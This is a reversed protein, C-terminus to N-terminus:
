NCDRSARTVFSFRCFKLAREICCVFFTCAGGVFVFSHSQSLPPPSPLLDPRPTSYFDLLFIYLRLFLRSISGGVKKDTLRTWEGAFTPSKQFLRSASLFAFASGALM